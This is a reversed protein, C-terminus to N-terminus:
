VRKPMTKPPKILKDVAEPTLEYHKTGDDDIAPYVGDQNHDEQGALPPNFACAVHLDGKTASLFHRDHKDLGYFVGPYLKYVKGQGREQGESVVEIEGEGAWVLVAEHHNQYWILTSTGALL